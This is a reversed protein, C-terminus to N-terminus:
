ESDGAYIFNGQTAYATITRGLITPKSLALKINIDREVETGAAPRWAIKQGPAWEVVQPTLQPATKLALLLGQTGSPVALLRAAPLNPLGDNLGSWSRGADASTWVGDAAAVVVVDPRQPSVALDSLSSGLISQGKFATLNNWTTGGDDSRYANQGAAYFRNGSVAVIRPQGAEPSAAVPSNSPPPVSVASALTWTELDITQFIRGSPTLAYLTSGDAGFWVRSVPGTALSPLGSEVAANGIHRWALEVSQGELLETGEVGLLVVLLLSRAIHRTNRPTAHRCM